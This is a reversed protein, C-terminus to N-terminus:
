THILGPPCTLGVPLLGPAPPMADPGPRVSCIRDAPGRLPTPGQTQGGRRDWVGGCRLWTSRIAAAPAPAPSPPTQADAAASGLSLVLQAFALAAVWRPGCARTAVGLGRDPSIRNM